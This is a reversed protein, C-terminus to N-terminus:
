PAPVGRVIVNAQHRGDSGDANMVAFSEEIKAAPTTINELIAVRPIKELYLITKHTLGNYFRTNGGSIFITGNPTRNV